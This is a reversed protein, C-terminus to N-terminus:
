GGSRTPIGTKAVLAVRQKLREEPLGPIDSPLVPRNFRRFKSVGLPHYPLLNIQRVGPISAALCATSQINDDDDNIGPIVPIRIWIHSHIRGLEQLNEIIPRNSVGTMRRHKEEDMLKIDFLFLDTLRAIAVLDDQPCFGSTDVATHIGRKKLATLLDALFEPQFLPEGGSITVGGGSDDYFIRDKMVQDVVQNVTMSRGAMQRAGTPCAEVCQGCRYCRTFDSLDDRYFLHEPCADRCTGCQICRAEMVTMEPEPQWSEPNHCWVCRLPCGKLFVTTRIGPGDHVSFKQINFVMGDTIASIKSPPPIM